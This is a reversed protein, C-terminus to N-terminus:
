QPRPPVRSVHCRCLHRAHCPAWTVPCAVCPRACLVCPLVCLVHQLECHVRPGACTVCTDAACTVCTDAAHSLCALTTHSTRARTVRPVPCRLRQHVHPPHVRSVRALCVRRRTRVCMVCPPAVHPSRVHTCPLHCVRCGSPPCVHRTPPPRGACAVPPPMRCGDSAVSAHPVGMFAPLLCFVTRAAPTLEQVRTHVHTCVSVHTDRSCMCKQAISTHVCTHQTHAHPIQNRSCAHGHSHTGTHVTDSHTRETCAPHTPDDTHGQSHTM